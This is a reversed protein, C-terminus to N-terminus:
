KPFIQQCRTEAQPRSIVEHKLKFVICNDVSRQTKRTNVDRMVFASVVLAIIILILQTKDSM